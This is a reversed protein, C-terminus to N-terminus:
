KFSNYFAETIDTMVQDALKSAEAQSVAFITKGFRDQNGEAKEKQEDTTFGLTIGNETNGLQIDNRLSGTLFLDVHDSQRGVTNRYEAYGGPFYQSKRKKGNKFDGSSNKGKPKLSSKRVQSTQSSPSLYFPRTSYSGINQENSDKGDQFIRQKFDASLSLM